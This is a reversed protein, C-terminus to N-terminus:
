ASMYVNADKTFPSTLNVMEVWAGLATNIEKEEWAARKMFAPAKDPTRFLTASADLSAEPLDWPGAPGPEPVLAGWRQSAQKAKPPLLAQARASGLLVAPITVGTPPWIGSDLQLQILHVSRTYRQGLVSVALDARADTATPVRTRIRPPSFRALAGRIRALTAANMPADASAPIELQDLVRALDGLRIDDPPGYLSRLLRDIEQWHAALAPRRRLEGAMVLARRLSEDKKVPELIRGLWVIAQFYGESSPDGSFRDRPTYKTFDETGDPMLSPGASTHARIQLLEAQVIGKSMVPLGDLGQNNGELLAQAVAFYLVDHAAAGRTASDRSKRSTELCADRMQGCFSALKPAIVLSDLEGLAAKAVLHFAHLCLDTTVCPYAPDLFEYMENHTEAGVAFGNRRLQAWTSDSLDFPSFTRDALFRRLDREARSAQSRIRAAQDACYRAPDAVGRSRPSSACSDELHPNTALHHLPALGRPDGLQAMLQIAAEGMQNNPMGELEKLLYPFARPEHLSVLAEMASSRALFERPEERGLFELLASTAAPHPYKALVRGAAWSTVPDPDSLMVQSVVRAM